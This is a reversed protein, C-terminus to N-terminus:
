RHHRYGESPALAGCGMSDQEYLAFLLPKPDPMMAGSFISPANGYRSWRMSNFSGAGTGEGRRTPPRHLRDHYRGGRWVADARRHRRFHRRCQAEADAKAHGVQSLGRSVVGVQDGSRVM